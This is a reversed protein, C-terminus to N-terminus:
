SYNLTYGLDKAYDYFGNVGFKEDRFENQMLLQFGYRFPSLYQLWDIWVALQDLKKYLGALTMMPIILINTLASVKSIHKFLAACFLGISCGTANLM